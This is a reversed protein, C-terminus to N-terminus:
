GVVRYEHCKQGPVKRSEVTVGRQRLERIRATIAEADVSYRMLLSARLDRPTWWLGDAMILGVMETQTLKRPKPREWQQNCSIFLETQEGSPM